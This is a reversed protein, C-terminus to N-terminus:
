AHAIPYLEEYSRLWINGRRKEGTRVVYGATAMRRAARLTAHSSIVRASDGYHGPAPVVFFRSATM